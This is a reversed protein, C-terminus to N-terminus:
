NHFLVMLGGTTGSCTTLDPAGVDNSILSLEWQSGASNLVLEFTVQEEVVSNNMTKATYTVGADLTLKIDVYPDDCIDNMAGQMVFTTGGDTSLFLTRGPSANQIVFKVSAFQDISPTTPTPTPEVPEEKECSVVTFSVIGILFLMLLKKM